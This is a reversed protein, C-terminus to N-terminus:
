ANELSLTDADWLSVLAKHVDMWQQKEAELARLGKKTLTYYKRRPGEDSARWTSKLLGRNELDHLVPYLTSTSWEVQGDTVTKVRQIIQYGYSEGEALISLLFPKISAAVLSRDIM